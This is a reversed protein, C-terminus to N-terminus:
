PKESCKMLLKLVKQVSSLLIRQSVNLYLFRMFSMQSYERLSKDRRAATPGAHLHDTENTLPM